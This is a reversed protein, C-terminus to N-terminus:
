LRLDAAEVEFDIGGEHLFETFFGAEGSCVVIHYCYLGGFAVKFLM